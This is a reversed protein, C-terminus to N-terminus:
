FPVDAAISDRLWLASSIHIADTAKLHHKKIMMKLIKFLDHKFDLITFYDLNNEFENILEFLEKDSVDGIKNRRIFASLMEPYTISSTAITGADIIIRKDFRFRGRCCIKQWHAQM